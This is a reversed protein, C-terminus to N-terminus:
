VITEHMWKLNKDGPQIKAKKDFGEESVNNWDELIKM